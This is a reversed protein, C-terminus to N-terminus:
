EADKGKVKFADGVTLKHRTTGVVLADIEKPKLDKLRAPMLPSLDLRQDPKQKLEFSLASM